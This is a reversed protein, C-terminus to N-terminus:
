EDKDYMKKLNKQQAMKQYNTGGHGQWGSVSLIDTVTMCGHIISAMDGLCAYKYDIVMNNM